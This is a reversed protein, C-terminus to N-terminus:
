ALSSFVSFVGVSVGIGSKSLNLRFPGFGLSKRIYFGMIFKAISTTKGFQHVM